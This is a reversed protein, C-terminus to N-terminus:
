NAFDNFGIMGADRGPFRDLSIKGDLVSNSDNESDNVALSRTRSEPFTLSNLKLPFPPLGPSLLFPKPRPSLSYRRMYGVIEIAISVYNAFSMYSLTNIYRFLKCNSWKIWFFAQVFHSNFGGM